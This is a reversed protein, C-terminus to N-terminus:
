GDLEPYHRFVDHESFPLRRESALYSALRPRMGVRDHLAILRPLERSIREFARPFALRLGEIVQFASLDVYSIETGVLVGAGGTHDNRVITRELYRLFQPMRYDRFAAARLKAPEVQTEYAREVTIPHHTDHVETVLDAITLAVSRAVLQEQPFLPALGLKEGLFSTIAATHSLWLDDVRLFPPAFPMLPAGEGHMIRNLRDLGDSTRCVDVYDVGSDELVLRVFEGRGQIQPWYFLELIM